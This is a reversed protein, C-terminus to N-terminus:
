RTLGLRTTGLPRPESVPIRQTGDPNAIPPRRDPLGVIPKDRAATITRNRHDTTALRSSREMIIHSIDHVLILHPQKNTPKM